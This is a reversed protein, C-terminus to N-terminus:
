LGCIEMETEAEGSSSAQSIRAIESDATGSHPLDGEPPCPLGDWYEQRSFETSLPAPLAVTWSTVFLRVCSLSKLVTSLYLYHYGLYLNIQSLVQIVDNLFVSM